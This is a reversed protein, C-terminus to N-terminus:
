KYVNNSCVNTGAQCVKWTRPGAIHGCSYQFYGDNEVAARWVGDSYIDVRLGVAGTWTLNAYYWNQIHLRTVSLLIEGQPPTSTPSPLPTPTATASPQATATPTATATATATPAATATPSPAATSTPTPSPAPTPTSGGGTVLPHPYTYPVYGPMVTNNFYDLNAVLQPNHSVVFGGINSGDPVYINDWAYCPERVQNLFHPAPNDGILLDGRGRCSMDIPQLVKRIEYQEGILMFPGSYIPGTLSNATNGEILLTVTGAANSATYGVWQNPVWSKTSDSITQTGGNTSATVTGSDYLVPDNWDWANVGTAGGFVDSPGSWSHFLRFTALGWGLPKVGIFRNGWAIMTGCRIGDLVTTGSVLNFRNRYFEVTRGGRGRGLETGHDLTEIDKLYSNRIVYRAGSYSDVGAYAGSTANEVWNDEFFFAKETGWLADQSFELDGYGTGNRVQNQQQQGINPGDWVNHDAVGFGNAELWLCQLMRVGTMHNHDFRFRANPNSGSYHIMKMSSNVTSGGQFTIGTIRSVLPATGSPILIQLFGVSAFRNTVNDVVITQDNVTKSTPPSGTMAVTTQGQLTIAKTFVMNAATWSFTGAPLTITDGNVTAAQDHLRQIDAQSGNSNWTTALVSQLALAGSALSILIARM